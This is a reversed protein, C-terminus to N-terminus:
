TQVERVAIGVEQYYDRVIVASHARANDHMLTFGEGVFGAYPVVYSLSEQGLAGRARSRMSSRNKRRSVNRGLVYYLWM